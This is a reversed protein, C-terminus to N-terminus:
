SLNGSTCIKEAKIRIDYWDLLPTSLSDVFSFIVLAYDSQVEKEEYGAQLSSTTPRDTPRDTTCENIAGHNWIGEKGDKWRGEDITMRRKDNM